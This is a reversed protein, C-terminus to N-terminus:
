IGQLGMLGALSLIAALIWFRVVVKSEEWGKLEFHHHLPSMRFIRKGGTLRFYIVQIIVSLAELVYVGGIIVLFFETRTLIAVVAIAGGLALSGTDGMFVQAPHSNFWAFGLCAGTIATTFSALDYNGLNLSIVTYTIAVIITVGAALGDLGDTLNVANSTGIVVLIVFPIFLIGLDLTGGLYPIIIKSGINLNYLINYGLLGGILIQGFLKQKAKLGLSRNAVIKISDDLLGLFGYGLTVFLAWFLKSTMETFLLISVVISILIIVGGMTPTGSKELHSEPGVERINQGFKLRHLLNIMVPGILLTIAFAAVTTYILNVM